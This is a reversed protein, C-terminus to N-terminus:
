LVRVTGEFAVFCGGSAERGSVAECLQTRHRRVWGRSRRCVTYASTLPHPSIDRLKQYSWRNSCRLSDRSREVTAFYWPPMM